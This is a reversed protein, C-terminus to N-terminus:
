RPNWCQRSLPIAFFLVLSEAGPNKRGLSANSIHYYHIGVRAYTRFRWALEIGSRFELPYHLDKGGGPRYWGAAFNPSFVLRDKLIWELGFGGYLYTVGRITMMLGLTPRVTYWIVGPRYEVQFTATKHHNNRSVEFVGGGFSLLSPEDLARLSFPTLFICIFWFFSRISIM